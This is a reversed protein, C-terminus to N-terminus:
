EEKQNKDILLKAGMMVNFSQKKLQFWKGSLSYHWTLNEKSKRFGIRQGYSLMRIIVDKTKRIGEISQEKNRIIYEPDDPFVGEIAVFFGDWPINIDYEFVDVEYWGRIIEPKVVLFNNILDKGPEGTASDKLYIHIRFPAHTNGKESLFFRIKEIKGTLKDKNEIFLATQQGHTDLYMEGQSKKSKEGVSIKEFGNGMIIVPPISYIKMALFVKLSDDVDVDKFAIEKKQFGISSILLTDEPGAQEINLKFAAEYNAVVGKNKGKIEITSYPIKRGSDEDFIQGVIYETQKFQHKERLVIQDQIFLFEVNTALTLESLITTLLTAKYNRLGTSNLRDPIENGYAFYLGTSDSIIKMAEDISVGKLNLSLKKEGVSQGFLISCSSM